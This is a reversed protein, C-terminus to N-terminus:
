KELLTFPIDLREALNAGLRNLSKRKEERDLMFARCEADRRIIDRLKEEARLKVVQIFEEQTCDRAEIEIAFSITSAVPVVFLLWVVITDQPHWRPSAQQVTIREVEAEYNLLQIKM